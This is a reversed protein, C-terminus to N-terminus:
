KTSDQADGAQRRQRRRGLFTVFLSGDHGLWEAYGDAAPVDDLRDM